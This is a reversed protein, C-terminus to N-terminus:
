QRCFLSYYMLFLDALLLNVSQDFLTSYTLSTLMLSPLPRFDPAFSSQPSYWYKCFLFFCVLWIEKGQMKLEKRLVDLCVGGWSPSYWNQMKGDFFREAYRRKLCTGTERRLFSVLVIDFLVKLLFFIFSSFFFVGRFSISIGPNRDKNKANRNWLNSFVVIWYTQKKWIAILKNCRLLHDFYPRFRKQQNEWSGYFRGFRKMSESVNKPTNEGQWLLSSVELNLYLLFFSYSLVFVFFHSVPSFKRCFENAYIRTVRIIDLLSFLCYLAQYFTGFICHKSLIVFVHAEVAIVVPVPDFLFLLLSSVLRCPWKLPPFYPRGAAVRCVFGERVKKETGRPNHLHFEARSNGSSIGYVSTNRPGWPSFISCFLLKHM